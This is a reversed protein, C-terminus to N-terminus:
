TRSFDERSARADHYSGGSASAGNSRNAKSSATTADGANAVTASSRHAGATSGHTTFVVRVISGPETMSRPPRASLKPAAARTVMPAPVTEIEAPATRSRGPARMVPAEPMPPESKCTAEVPLMESSALPLVLLRM